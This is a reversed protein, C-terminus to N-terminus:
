GYRGDVRVKILMPAYRIFFLSFAVIWLIQSVEILQLYYYGLFIPLIVRVFAGIFLLAFILQLVKPPEFVNNGTHGLSVRAMMGSTIMGVGGYAFAHLALFPSVNTLISLAKLAFGLVIWAYGIYLVWLLPKKM